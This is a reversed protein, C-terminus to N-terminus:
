IRLLIRQDERFDETDFRAYFENPENAFQEETDTKLAASNKTYSCQTNLRRWEQKTGKCKFLDGMQNIYDVKCKYRAKKLESQIARIRVKDREAVAEKKKSLLQKLEKTVSSTLQMKKTPM